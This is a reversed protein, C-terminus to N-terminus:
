RDRLSVPRKKIDVDPWEPQCIEEQRMTTAIAYRVIRGMPVVQRPNTEFYEILEDIEDQTPRRDREIGRGVLDLRKLAIRALRGIPAKLTAQATPSLHRQALEAILSHGLQDWALAHGCYCMSM